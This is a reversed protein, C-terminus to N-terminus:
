ACMGHRRYVEVAEWRDGAGIKHLIEHVHRKVTQDSINLDVAIEKNSLGCSLMQLLEQERRTLGFELKASFGPLRMCQRAVCDFLILCLQPPCVAEGNAVARVAEVIETASADNLVYGALGARAAALFQAKDLDMGVMVVKLAPIERHAAQILHIESIAFFESDILLVDPASNVIEALAQASFRLAQVVQIDNKMKLLDILAERVFRGEVSV